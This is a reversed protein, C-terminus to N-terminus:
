GLSLTGDGLGITLLRQTVDSRVDSSTLGTVRLGCAVTRSKSITSPRSFVGAVVVVVASGVVVRELPQGRAM